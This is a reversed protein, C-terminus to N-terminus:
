ANKVAVNQIVDAVDECRDTTAELLEYIEKKRILEIPDSENRFLDAILNRELKDAENELRNIEICYNLVPRRAHLAGLAETLISCCKAVMEALTVVASPIPKLRYAVIRFTVDEIHDLVNDLATALSQIDEPDFPTIFTSRMHGFISHVVKDGEDEMTGIDNQIRCVGDYGDNLGSVLLRSARCLIQGHREFLFLFTEDKPLLKM